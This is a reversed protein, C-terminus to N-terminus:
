TIQAFSHFTCPDFEDLFIAATGPYPELLPPGSRCPCRPMFRRPGGHCPPSILDEADELGCSLRVLGDVISRRARETPEMGHHPATIPQTVLSEVGGLSAAITFLKLPDVTWRAPAPLRRVPHRVDEDPPPFAAPRAGGNRLPSWTAM